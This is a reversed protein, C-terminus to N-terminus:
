GGEEPAHQKFDKVPTIRPRGTQPDVYALMLYRLGPAFRLRTESATTWKGDKGEFQFIVPAMNFDDRKEPRDVGRSGGAKLGLKQEGIVFRLNGGHFNAVHAGGNPFKKPSDEIVFIRWPLKNKGGKPARAFVLIAEGIGDPIAAEAAPKRDDASIFSLKNGMMMCQVEQSILGARMKVKAEFDKDGINLLEPPRDNGLSIFRCTIPKGKEEQAVGTAPLLFLLAPVIAILLRM